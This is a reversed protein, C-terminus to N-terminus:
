GLLTWLAFVVYWFIGGRILLALLADLRALGAEGDIAGPNDIALRGADALLRRTPLEWDTLAPLLVRKVLVFHGVLAFTAALLRAPLWDFAHRLSGARERLAAHAAHAESLVLLRYALAALPGLLVYWFVVAFFGHFGQWLLRAEVQEFLTAEDAAELGLDRQAILAAAESDGRRWAERFAALEAALDGRGLAYLVLLLHVPLALWGYAMPELVELLLGVLVLPLAVLWALSLWPQEAREHRARLDHWWGDRQIGRRLGSFREALLVLLLVFFNM